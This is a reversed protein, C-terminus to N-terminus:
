AFKKEDLGHYINLPIPIVAINEKTLVNSFNLNLIFAMGKDGRTLEDDYNYDLLLDMNIKVNNKGRIYRFFLIPNEKAEHCIKVDYEILPVLLMQSQSRYVINKM